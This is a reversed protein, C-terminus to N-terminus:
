KKSKRQKNFELFIRKQEDTLLTEIKKNLEAMKAKQNERSIKQKYFEDYCSKIKQEQEASLGLEKDLQKIQQEIRQEPNVSGKNRRQADAANFSAIAIIALLVIRKM